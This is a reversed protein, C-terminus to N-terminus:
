LYPPSQPGSPHLESSGLTLIHCFWSKFGPRAPEMGLARDIGETAVAGQIIGVGLWAGAKPGGRQSVKCSRLIIIGSNKYNKKKRQKKPNICEFELQFVYSFSFSLKPGRQAVSGRRPGLVGEM